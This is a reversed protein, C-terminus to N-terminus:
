IPTHNREVSTPGGSVTDLDHDAIEDGARTDPRVNQDSAAPSNVALAAPAQAHDKNSVTM